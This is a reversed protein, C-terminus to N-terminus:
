HPQPLSFNPFTWSEYSFIVDWILLAKAWSSDGESPRSGSMDRGVWQNNSPFWRILKLKLLVYLHSARSERGVSDV